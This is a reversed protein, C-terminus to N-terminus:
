DLRFRSIMEKLTRAEENLSDSTQTNEEATASGTNIENSIEDFGITVEKIMDSQEESAAAIKSVIKEVNETLESVGKVSLHTKEAIQNGNNVAKITRGILETTDHAAEASKTALNRVEDAVVAFGKGAAGARAAEIAANLALINTQFAIDEITKIINDIENSAASIDDMASRLNEMESVAVDVNEATQAVLGRGQECNGATEIVKSSISHITANLQEVSAAQSISSQSLTQAGTSVQDASTTVAEASTTIQRLVSSLEDHITKIANILGSFDGKYAAEGAKSRIAFNGAAMESMQYSADGIITNIGAVLTGTAKALIETENGTHIEPVPSSLDGDSLKVLRDACLKIPDAIRRAIVMSRLVSIVAALLFLGVAVIIIVTAMGLFDNQPAVIALSWGNLGEIPTYAVYMTKGNKTIKDLGTNGAQMSNYASGLNGVITEKVEDNLVNDKEVHAAINGSSDVLFAYCNDSINIKRMIENMFDDEAIFYACGVAKSGYVGNEWLPAAIIEIIEGTLRSVTPNYVCSNGSMAEKYYGRDSYDSYDTINLGESNIINGRKMGHQKALENMLALKEEDSISSSTLKPNMGASEAYAVFTKFEWEVYNSALEAMINMDKKTTQITSYVSSFICFLIVVLLPILSLLLTLQM